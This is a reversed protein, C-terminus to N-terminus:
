QLFSIKPRDDDMKLHPCFSQPCEETVICDKSLAPVVFLTFVAITIPIPSIM